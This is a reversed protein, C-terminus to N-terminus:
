ICSVRKRGRSLLIRYGCKPCRIFDRKIDAYFVMADGEYRTAKYTIGKLNFAHYLISTSM